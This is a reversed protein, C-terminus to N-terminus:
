RPAASKERWRVNAWGETEHVAIGAMILAMGLLTRVTAPEGLVAVGLAGAVVPTLALLMGAKEPSIRSQALPRFAFGFGSCGFALVALYLWSTTSAPLAPQEFALAGFLGGVGIVGVQVVGLAIADDGKAFISTLVTVLAYLVAAALALAEGAGFSMEGSGGSVLVVGAMAVLACALARRSPAKRQATAAILPVFVIATNEVFAITSSPGLTLAVQECAMVAFFASGLVLGHALVRKGMRALKTHFAIALVAFAALFRLAILTFPGMEQLLLKSFMFSTACVAIAAAFLWTAQKETM